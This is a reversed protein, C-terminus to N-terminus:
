SHSSLYRIGDRHYPILFQPSGCVSTIQKNNHVHNTLVYVGSMRKLRINPLLPLTLPPFSLGLFLYGFDVIM